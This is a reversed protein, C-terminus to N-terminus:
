ASCSRKFVSKSIKNHNNQILKQLDVKSLNKFLQVKCLAGLFFLGLYTLLFFPFNALWRGWGVSSSGHHQMYRSWDIRNTFSNWETNTLFHDKLVHLTSSGRYNIFSLVITWDLLSLPVSERVQWNTAEVFTLHSWRQLVKLVGWRHLFVEWRGM